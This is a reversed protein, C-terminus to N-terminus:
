HTTIGLSRLAKRIRNDTLPQQGSSKIVQFTTHIDTMPYLKTLAKLAIYPCIVHNSSFTLIFHPALNSLFFSTLYNARFVQPFNLQDCVRSIRELMKLDIINHPTVVLPRNIHM